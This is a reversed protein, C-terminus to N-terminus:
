PALLGMKAGIPAFDIPRRCESLGGPSLCMRASANARSPWETSRPKPLRSALMLRLELPHTAPFTCALCSNEQCLTWITRHHLFSCRAAHGILPLFPGDSSYGKGRWGHSTLMM